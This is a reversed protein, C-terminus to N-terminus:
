ELKGVINKASDLYSETPERISEELIVGLLDFFENSIISELSQAQCIDGIMNLLLIAPEERGM